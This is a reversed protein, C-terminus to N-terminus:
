AFIEFKFLHSMGGDNIQVNFADIVHEGPSFSSLVGYQFHVQGATGIDTVGISDAFLNGRPAGSTSDPASFARSATHLDFDPDFFPLDADIIFGQFLTGNAVAQSLDFRLLTSSGTTTAGLYVADGSLYQFTPAGLVAASNYMITFPVTAVGGHEDTLTIDFVQQRPLGEKGPLYPTASDQMVHQWHVFGDNGLQADFFTPPAVTSQFLNLVPTSVTIHDGPDPDYVAFAGAQGLGVPASTNPGNGYGGGIFMEPNTSNTGVLAPASNFTVVFPVHTGGHGDDIFIDWTQIRQQGEHGPLYPAALDQLQYTWRLSGFTDGPGDTYTENELSVNFIAPVDVTSNALDLTASVTHHDHRDPDIFGFGHTQFPGPIFPYPSTDSFTGDFHLSRVALDADGALAPADNMGAINVFIDRTTFGGRDDSLMLQFQDTYFEGAGFPQIRNEDVFYDWRIVGDAPSAALFGDPDAGGMTYVTGDTDRLVSAFLTGLTGLPGPTMGIASAFHMQQTEQDSFSLRGVAHQRDPHNVDDIVAGTLTDGAAPNIFIVPDHNPEEGVGDLIQALPISVIRSATGGRQDDITVLYDQQDPFQGSAADFQDRTLHYTVAVSGAGSGISDTDVGATLAGIYDDGLAEVSVIHSDILDIDAFAMVGSLTLSDEGFVPEGGVVDELTPADNVGALTWSASAPAAALGDSVGYNVSVTLMQDQALYQYAANSPDLTFSHTAAHYTVGAPLSGPVNTVQLTTSDDVDSANALADLAVLVDDEVAAGSVANSIVPADNLGTVTWSASAATTVFGDSVGYSVLVTLPQNQALHQYAANTPDLTFSHTAANYSVGAPLSAPLNVVSLTDNDADSTNALADLISSSGDETAVGSVPGSVTPAHNFFEFTDNEIDYIGDSFQLFEVQKVTDTGDRGAILDRITGDLNSRFSVAYEDFRGQYVAIDNGKGGDIDDNGAGGFIWDNGKAGKIKDSGLGGYLTDDGAKGNIKENLTTTNLGLTDALKTGKFKIYKTM